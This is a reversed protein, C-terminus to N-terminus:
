PDLCRARRGLGEEGGVMDATRDDKNSDSALERDQIRNLLETAAAGADGCIGVSIKKVLGLMKNDADVQIIKAAAPWYDLDHQPLTGFPGLRTGLALVVDAKAILKM